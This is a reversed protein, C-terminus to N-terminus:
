LSFIKRSLSAACLLGVFQNAITNADHTSEIPSQKWSYDANSDVYDINCAVSVCAIEGSNHAM